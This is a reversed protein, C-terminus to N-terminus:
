IFLFDDALVTTGPKVKLIEIGKAKGSGDADLYVTGNKKNYYVYDNSDKPNTISFFKKELKGEKFVKDLSFPSKKDDAKGKDGPKGKDDPKGKSFISVLDKKSAKVKFAKLAALDFQFSDDASNFDRVQDFHGKKFPSNFLFTDKGEGGYLIDKGAGGNIVDDGGMGWIWDNGAGGDISEALDTGRLKENRGTGSVTELADSVSVTMTKQFTLGSVDTVKITVQHSPATEFDFTAGEAVVLKNAVISFRGGANDVLTFTPMVAASVEPNDPDVATLLGVEAGAVANELVTAKSLLIDTPAEPVDNLNIRFSGDRVSTGGTTETSTVSIVFDLASFAEFNFLNGNKVILQDGSILFYNAWSAAISFDFNEGTRGGEVSLTGIVTGDAPNENFTTFGTLSITAAM